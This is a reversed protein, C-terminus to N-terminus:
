FSIFLEVIREQMNILLLLFPLRPKTQSCRKMNTPCIELDDRASSPWKWISCVPILTLFSALFETSVHLTRTKIFKGRNELSLQYCEKQQASINFCKECGGSCWLCTNLWKYQHVIILVTSCIVYETSCIVHSDWFSHCWLISNGNIATRILIFFSWDSVTKNYILM